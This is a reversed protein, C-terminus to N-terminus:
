FLKGQEHDMKHELALPLYDLLEIAQDTDFLWDYVQDEQLILPMRHHFARMSANADRTLIIFQDHHYFGALFMTTHDKEFFTVKEKAPTWEYFATAPMLARHNLFDFRFMPKDLVTECRANIMPRKFGKFEIGFQKIMIEYTGEKRILCFAKSSPYITGFRFTEEDIDPISAYNQLIRLVDKSIYFQGCM